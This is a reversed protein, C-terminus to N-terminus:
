IRMPMIVYKFSDDGPLSLLASSSSDGFEAKVLDVKLNGLVDLLYSVNFGIELPQGEYDVDLEETTDRFIGIETELGFQIIPNM